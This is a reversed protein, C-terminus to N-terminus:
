RALLWALCTRVRERTWPAAAAFSTLLTDAVADRGRRTAYRVLADTRVDGDVDNSALENIVKDDDLAPIVARRVLPSPDAAAPLADIKMTRSDGRAYTQWAAARVDPDRDILLADIDTHKPTV